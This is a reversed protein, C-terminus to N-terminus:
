AAQEADALECANAEVIARALQPCVSNGIMRIQATKTLKGPHHRVRGTPSGPPTYPAELVYSDPFGQARALERPTLMRMGIDVIQYDIGHVTVLGLRDRTPVTHMPERCDQWQGGESYYKVLFARVEAYRSAGALVTQMPERPDFGRTNQGFAAIHATVVQQQSGKANITSVPKRMDHGITQHGNAGGNHQALFATVLNQQTGRHVITSLPEDAPRGARVSGAHDTNHQALFATAVAHGGSGTVTGLPKEVSACGSGWRKVGGPRGEGHAAQVLTPVALALEGRSASTVTRLPERISHVRDDGVHTIPVIFPDAADIVYRQVGKAVRRLTADALPRKRTFISPCPLSWDICDAASRYPILGPGHTPAPWRIPLGDCRAILFLRKRITPAGYDCARLERTEVKYGHSRLASCFSEFTEGKRVPDPRWGSADQILPGWTKFEEVNELCIIRPRVTAAWRVAVWALGRIAKEVPKGGKAKSFHKCDPSFWALGVRRGGCLARPDVDWVSECHHETGPHNAAHMALAEANHNIAHTVLTSLAQEIGESAGGGGAFNDVVIENPFAYVYPALSM